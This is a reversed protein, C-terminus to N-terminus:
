PVYRTTVLELSSPVSVIKASLLVITGFTGLNCWFLASSFATYHTIVALILNLVDPAIRLTSGRGSYCTTLQSFMSAIENFFYLQHVHRSEFGRGGAQLYLFSVQAPRLATPVFLM